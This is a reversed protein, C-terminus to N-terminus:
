SNRLRSESGEPVELVKGDAIRLTRNCSELASERHTVLIITISKNLEKLVELVDKETERDLASTAEDLLLVQPRRYLARAIGVRQIQGGSLRAGREGLRESIGGPLASVFDLLGAFNLCSLVLDLDIDDESHGFAVNAALSDDSLFVSQPVFGIMALWQQHIDQLRIGNVCIDGRQPNSLGTSLDIFTSKGAGSEGVIGVFEGQNIVGSAGRLIPNDVGPYSFWVDNFQLKRFEVTGKPSKMIEASKSEDRKILLGSAVSEIIARSTQLTQLRNVVGIALPLLRFGVLAFLGLTPILDAVVRGSQVQIIVFLALVGVSLSELISRPLLAVLESVQAIRSDHRRTSDFKKALFSGAGFIKDEQIGGVGEQILKILTSANELRLRGWKNAFPRMIALYVYGFVGLALLVFVVLLPQQAVLL